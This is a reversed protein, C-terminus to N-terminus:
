SQLISLAGQLLLLLPPARGLTIIIILIPAMHPQYKGCMSIKLTQEEFYLTITCKTPHLFPEKKKGARLGL